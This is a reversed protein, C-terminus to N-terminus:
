AAASRSAKSETKHFAAHAAASFNFVRSGCEKCHVFAPRDEKVFVVEDEDSDLVIAQAEEEEEDLWIAERDDTPQRTTACREESTVDLTTGKEELDDSPLDTLDIEEAEAKAVNSTAVRSLASQISNSPRATTFNTACINIITLRMNLDPGSGKLIKKLLSTLIGKTLRAARIESPVDDDIADIPFPTSKSERVRDYGQRITLRLQTPYQAWLVKKSADATGVKKGDIGETLDEKLRDLLHAALLGMEDVAQKFNTIGYHSNEVSIQVPYEPSPHVPENDVAFLLGWLRPGLKEGFWGLFAKDTCHQRVLGVTLVRPPDAVGLVEDLHTRITNSISHGFGQISRLEFPSLFDSSEERYRRVEPNWTTQLAPKNLSAVLKAITKNHAVGASTTFGHEKHIRERIHAALHAAALLLPSHQADATTDISPIVLSPSSTPDYWFGVPDKVSPDPSLNFFVRDLQSKTSSSPQELDDVHRRVMATVDCFLEDMGLREVQRDWIISKVLRTIARSFRRYQSLDEGNVLILEPCLRKAEKVNQLKGVGKARAEYSCTALIYKQQVGVAKGILSPNLLRECAVYFSDLDIAIIVREPWEGARAPHLQRGIRSM